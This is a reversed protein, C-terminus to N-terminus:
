ARYLPFHKVLLDVMKGLEQERDYIPPFQEKLSDVLRGYAQEGSAIIRTGEISSATIIVSHLSCLFLIIHETAKQYLGSRYIWGASYLTLSEMDPHEAADICEIAEKPIDERAVEFTGAIIGVRNKGSDLKGLQGMPLYSSDPTRVPAIGPKGNVTRPNFRDSKHVPFGTRHTGPLQYEAFESCVEALRSYLREEIESDAFRGPEPHKAVELIYATDATRVLWVLYCNDPVCPRLHYHELRTRRGVADNSSFPQTSVFATLDGNSELRQELLEFSEILCQPLTRVTEDVQPHRRINLRTNM